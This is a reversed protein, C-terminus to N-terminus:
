SIHNCVKVSIRHTALLRKQLREETNKLDARLAKIENRVAQFEGKVLAKFGQIEKQVDRKLEASDDKMQTRIANM